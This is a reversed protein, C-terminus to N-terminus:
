VLFSLVLNTVMKLCSVLVLFMYSFYDTKWVEIVEEWEKGLLKHLVVDFPGQESLPRNLDIAVFFIGKRRALLELKPQLFSKKKKSTLAYGVVLKQQQQLFLPQQFQFPTTENVVVQDEEEEQEEGKYPVMNEGEFRMAFDEFGGCSVGLNSTIGLNRNLRATEIEGSALTGFM